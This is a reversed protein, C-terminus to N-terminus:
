PRDASRDPSGAGGAGRPRLRQSPLQHAPVDDLTGGATYSGASPDVDYTWVDKASVDDEWEAVTEGRLVSLLADKNQKSTAQDRNESIHIHWLHSSDSTAPCNYRIDWGEVYSDVDSQGYFERWGNLRPDDPDQASALLRKTYKAIRDYNGGQAEPFTWDVAACVTSPGGGDPPKDVVSYNSPSNQSRSNHYGPKNAYTGGNQSEPELKHLEDVLYQMEATVYSSGRPTPALPDCGLDRFPGDM